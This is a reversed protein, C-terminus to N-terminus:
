FTLNLEVFSAFLPNVSNRLRDYLDKFGGGPILMSLGARVIINNSLLPRYEIGTSLDYGIFDRINGDFTFTQLPETQDFWLININNISRLKPTLDLDMGFNLLHLGPNVFNTQGQIKSSRLDPVLSNAQVLNVGFLKIQQRQWYSFDGGAFNPNDMITDFGTAHKNNPDKDGSAYFYSTRFRAWDRDYSLEVAGMLASIEQRQNAIPNLSDYGFAYYLAHTINYRNIHGDGLWGLYGVDIEHPKFVGVPDPRVLFNNRDFRFSAQDHNFHLNVEATYGPWIFDQRFYNAIFVDQGRDDFRNLGSNTDKELMRFYLVNFQDRNAFRTGFLRVARNTDDFIFGRFDSNFFQSGVRVSMFDYDMSLDTIKSEVFYEELTFFTRGRTTGKRVDPNVIALEDVALYNVNFIPTLKVRWDVPKFGADGHFLDIALITYNQLLFQNPSGFFEERAPRTTSEFPTTPKPTQAGDLIMRNTATIELFTQQGCIPYDGKLVNLNFPDWWHGLQYPYDDTIPHGRGYRDWDPYGARWRDEVPVFHSTEQTERPAVSSRGSFGLPPLTPTTLLDGKEEAAAEKEKPKEPEKAPEGPRRLGGLPKQDAPTEEKQTEAPPKRLVQAGATGAGAGAVVVSLASAWAWRCALKTRLM